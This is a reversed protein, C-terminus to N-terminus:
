RVKINHNNQSLQVYYDQRQNAVLINLLQSARSNQARGDYTYEHTHIPGHFM